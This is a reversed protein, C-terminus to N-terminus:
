TRGQYNLAMELLNPYYTWSNTVYVQFSRSFEIPKDRLEQHNSGSLDVALDGVVALVQSNAETMGTFLANFLTRGDVILEVRSTSGDVKGGNLGYRFGLSAITGKGTVSTLLTRTNATPSNVAVQNCAVLNANIYSTGGASFRNVIAAPRNYSVAVYNTVDDAPDTTGGGTATKRQYIEGDLPSRRYDWQLVTEGSSWLKVSGGGIFQTFNSMLDFGM